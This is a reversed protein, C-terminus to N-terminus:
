KNMMQKAEISLTAHPVARLRAKDILKGTVRCIGYTKNEIRMMAKELHDIFTIQRSAMQSLQEREMSVSGDEMTMYRAEDMDGGEDKRTILGQLYSLEKKAADLKKQIIERFETLDADSYRMTPGSQLAAAQADLISKTFEPEYKVSSKTTTKPIVIKAPKPPEKKIVPQVKPKISVLSKPDVSGPKKVVPKPIPAAEQKVPAKAAPKPAPKPAPKKAVVKKSAPKPAKKATAKKTAPKAKKVTKKAAPKGGARRAPKAAPKKPAPKAAKKPAKKGGSHRAPKRTAM